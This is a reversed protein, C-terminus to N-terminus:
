VSSLLFNEHSSTFQRIRDLERDQQHIIRCENETRPIARRHNVGIERGWRRVTQVSVDVGTKLRILDAVEVYNIAQHNKNSRNVSQRIIADAKGRDLIRPRGSRDADQLSQATGDWREFWSKVVKWGGQVGHRRALAAFGHGKDGACYERLITHKVEPSFHTM